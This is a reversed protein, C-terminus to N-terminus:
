TGPEFVWATMLAQAASIACGVKTARWEPAAIV